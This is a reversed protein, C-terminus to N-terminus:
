RSRHRRLLWCRSLLQSGAAGRIVEVAAESRLGGMGFTLSAQASGRVQGRRLKSTETKTPERRLRCPDSARQYPRPTLGAQASDATPELCILAKLSFDDSCETRTLRECRIRAARTRRPGHAQALRHRTPRPTRGPRCRRSVACASRATALPRCCSTTPSFALSSKSCLARRTEWVLAARGCRWARGCCSPSFACWSTRRSAIPVSTGSRVYRSSTRKSAFVSSRGPHAPHLGEVTIRRGLGQHQLAACLRRGVPRGLQRFIRQGFDLESAAGVGSIGHHQATRGIPAVFLLGHRIRCCFWREAAELCAQGLITARCPEAEFDLCSLNLRRISAARSRRAARM